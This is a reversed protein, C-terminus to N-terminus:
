KLIVWIEICLLFLWFDFWFISWLSNRWSIFWTWKFLKEAIQQWWLAHLKCIRWQLRETQEVCRLRGTSEYLNKTHCLIEQHFHLLCRNRHANNALKHSSINENRQSVYRKGLSQQEDKVFMQVSITNRSCTCACGFLLLMANFQIIFELVRPICVM